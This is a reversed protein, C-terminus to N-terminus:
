RCQCCELMDVSLAPQPDVQDQDTVTIPSTDMNVLSGTTMECVSGRYTSQSFTPRNDNVDLVTVTVLVQSSASLGDVRDSSESL